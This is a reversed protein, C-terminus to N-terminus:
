IIYARIGFSSIYILPTYNYHSALNNNGYTASQTIFKRKVNVVTLRDSILKSCKVVIVWVIGVFWRVFAVITKAVAM